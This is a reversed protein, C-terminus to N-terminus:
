SLSLIAATLEWEDRVVGSRSSTSGGSYIKFRAAIKGALQSTKYHGNALNSTSKRGKAKV